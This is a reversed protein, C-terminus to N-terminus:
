IFIIQGTKRIVTNKWFGYKILYAIRKFKGLRPIEIYKELIFRSNFDLENKYLSYFYEAQIFTDGVSSKLNDKNMFRGYIYKFSSANKAGVSNKGHQRYLIPPSDIFEIKGFFSATLALWWDHMIIKEPNTYEYLNILNLLSKNIMVTCGTVTNQTMLRAPRTESGNLKQTKVMSDSITNLNEDVVRLDTHVLVPIKNNDAEAEKVRKLTVAIKDPKWFDDQDSLMIYDSKAYRLMSLFNNKASGSPVTNKHLIIKQPFKLAYEGVIEATGDSSCDDQIILRWNEYSQAMISKIQESIYIEGNYCALLIDVM